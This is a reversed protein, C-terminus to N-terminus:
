LVTCETDSQVPGTDHPKQQQSGIDLRAHIGNQSQKRRHDMNRWKDENRWLLYILKLFCFIIGILLFKILFVSTASTPSITTGVITGDDTNPFVHKQNKVHFFRFIMFVRLIRIIRKLTKGIGTAKYWQSAIGAMIGTCKPKLPIGSICQDRSIATNTNGAIEKIPTEIKQNNPCRIFDPTMALNWQANTQTMANKEKTAVSIIILLKLGSNSTNHHRTM